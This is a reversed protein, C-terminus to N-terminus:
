SSRARRMNSWAVVGAFLLAHLGVLLRLALLERWPIGASNLALMLGAAVFGIALIFPDLAASVVARALRSARARRTEPPPAYQLPLPSLSNSEAAPTAMPAVDGRLLAVRELRRLHTETNGRFPRIEHRHM